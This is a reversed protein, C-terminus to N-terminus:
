TCVGLVCLAPCATTSSAYSCHGNTGCVGNSYSRRHYLDTCSSAPPSTCVGAGCSGGCGDSGCERDLCRPVCARCQGAECGNACTTDGPEYDCAGEACAGVAAFTRLTMADACRRAPPSQCRGCSVGCGDDGCAKGACSGSCNLCARDACGNACTTETVAYRCEGETCQGVAGHTRLTTENMCVPPPPADCAPGCQGGCGDSGCLRDSCSATCSTCRGDACGADCPVDTPSYVCHGEECAGQHVHIRVADGGGTCASAPFDTCNGCGGADPPGADSGADDAYGPPSAGLYDYALQSCASSAVLLALSATRAPTERQRARTRHM